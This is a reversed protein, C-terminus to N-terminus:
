AHGRGRTAVGGVWVGWQGESVGGLARVVGRRLGRGQRLVSRVKLVKHFGGQGWVWGLGM